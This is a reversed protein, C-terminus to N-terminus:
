RGDAVGGRGRYLAKNFVKASAVIQNSSYTPCLDWLRGLGFSALTMGEFERVIDQYRENLTRNRPDLGTCVVLGTPPCDVYSICLDPRYRRLILAVKWVDGTWLGRIERPETEDGSRRKREAMRANLPLCDHLVIMTRETAFHETNTFDRLLVEYLHLGDLFALDIGNPFLRVVAALDAFFQDSTGQFFHTNRRRKLVDTCIDFNPDVCVADCGIMRLSDGRWTGVEFYIRPELIQEAEKLWHQYPIGEHALRASPNSIAKPEAIKTDLEPFIETFWPMWWFYGAYTWLESPEAQACWDANRAVRRGGDGYRDGRLGPAIRSFPLTREAMMRAFSEIPKEAWLKYTQLGSGAIIQIGSEPMRHHDCWFVNWGDRLGNVYDFARQTILFADAELHVIKSFGNVEAYRSVFFFSRIWGPYVHLEPRGLRQAFHYLVIPADCRLDDGEHLITVDPWEPLVDSGDDVLLIQDFHIGLRRVAELWIRYRINGTYYPKGDPRHFATCFVVTRQPEGLSAPRAAAQQRRQTGILRGILRRARRIAIKGASLRMVGSACAKQWTGM